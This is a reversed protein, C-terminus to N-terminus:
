ESQIFDLIVEYQKLALTIRDGHDTWQIGLNKDAAQIIYERVQCLDRAFLAMAGFFSKRGKGSCAHIGYLTQYVNETVFVLEFDQCTVRSEGHQGRRVLANALAAYRNAQARPKPDVILIAAIAHSTNPHSQWEPRWVLEPTLHQCYYLRGAEFQGPQLRTTKFKVDKVKGALEVPRGFTQVDTLAYGQARIAHYTKSANKTKFVLGDLGQPSQLIERRVKVSDTPLGVLELYDTDFTMLHNISGLSHFGRATLYFGLHEFIRQARDLDYHVNVVLHDLSLNQALPM